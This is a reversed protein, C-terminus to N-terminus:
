CPVSTWPDGVFPTSSAADNGLGSPGWASEREAEGDGAELEVGRRPATGFPCGAGPVVFAGVRLMGWGM